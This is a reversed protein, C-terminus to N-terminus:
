VHLNYGELDIHYFKKSGTKNYEIPWNDLYFIEKIKLIELSEIIRHFHIFCSIVLIRYKRENLVNNIITGLENTLNELNTDQAILDEIVLHATKQAIESESIPKLTYKIFNM